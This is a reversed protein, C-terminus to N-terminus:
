ICINMEFLSDKTQILTELKQCLVMFVPGSGVSRRVWLFLSGINVTKLALLNVISEYIVLVFALSYFLVQLM